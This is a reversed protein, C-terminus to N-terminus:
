RTGTGERWGSNERTSRTLDPHSSCPHSLLRAPCRPNPLLSWEMGFRGGSGAAPSTGVRLSWRSRPQGPGPTDGWFGMGAAPDGGPAIGAAGLAAAPTQRCSFIGRLAAFGGSPKPEINLNRCCLAMNCPPRATPDGEPFPPLLPCSCLPAIPGKWTSAPSSGGGAAATGGPQELGPREEGLGWCFNSGSRPPFPVDFM